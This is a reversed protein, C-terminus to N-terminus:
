VQTEMAKSSASQQAKINIKLIRNGGPVDSGDKQEVKLCNKCKGGVKGAHRSCSRSVVLRRTDIQIINASKVKVLFTQTWELEVTNQPKVAAAPTETVDNRYCASVHGNKENLFKRQLFPIKYSRQTRSKQIQPIM